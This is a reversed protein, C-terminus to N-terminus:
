SRPIFQAPPITVLGFSWLPLLAAGFEQSLDPQWLVEVKLLYDTLRISPDLLLNPRARLASADM